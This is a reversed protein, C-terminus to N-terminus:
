ETSTDVALQEHLWNTFAQFRLRDRNEHPCLLDYGRESPVLEPCPSVLAGSALLPRVLVERGMAIGMGSEAAQLALRYLNFSCTREELPLNVGVERCWHRWEGVAEQVDTSESAHIFIAEALQEPKGDCALQRAYEPSCVPLLRETMLREQYLDAYRGNGYYIALDVQEENFDVVGARVKLKLNLSPWSRQFDPLRPMLWLQALTPAIGIHLLGRLDQERIDEIEDNIQRLSRSLTARLREGEQTLALKRTMRIFLRFGLLTELHRIRHSVAGQTLHLDEAARTFSLHTATIEFTHLLALQNQQVLM